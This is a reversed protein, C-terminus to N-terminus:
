RRASACHESSCIGREYDSEGPTEESLLGVAEITMRCCTATASVSTLSALRAPRKRRRKHM